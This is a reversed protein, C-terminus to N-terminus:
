VVKKVIVIPTLAQKGIQFVKAHLDISHIEGQPGFHIEAKGNRLDFVQHALLLEFTAQYQRWLVFSQAESDNLELITM